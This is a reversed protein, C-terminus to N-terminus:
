CDGLPDIPTRKPEKGFRMRSREILRRIEVDRDKPAASTVWGRIMREAAVEDVAGFCGTLLSQGRPAPDPRQLSQAAAVAERMDPRGAPKSQQRAM